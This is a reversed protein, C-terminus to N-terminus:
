EMKSYNNNLIIVKRRPNNKSVKAKNFSQKIKINKECDLPKFCVTRAKM